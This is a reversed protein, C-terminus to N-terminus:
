RPRRLLLALAWGVLNAVVDRATDNPSWQMNIKEEDGVQAMEVTHVRYEAYEWAVTVVALISLSVLGKRRSVWGALRTLVGGNAKTAADVTDCILWTLGGATAGHPIADLGFGAVRIKALRGKYINFRPHSLVYGAALPAVYGAYNQNDRVVEVAVQEVFTRPKRRLILRAADPLLLTLSNMLTHPLWASPMRYEWRKRAATAAVAGWLAYRILDGVKM